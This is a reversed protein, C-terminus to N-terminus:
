YDLELRLRDKLEKVLPYEEIIKLYQEKTNLRKEVPEDNVETEVIVISYTLLKNSFYDQLHDILASREQEIFKQQINNGTTIEITTADIIKLSAMKFNTVASHNKREVLKEIFGGWCVYLEEETLPKVTTESNNQEVIKNRIKQLSALSTKPQQIKEVQPQYNNTPRQEDTTRRGNDTTHREETTEIILKAKPAEQKPEEKVKIIPLSRFAVAKTQEVVKKKSIVGDDNV